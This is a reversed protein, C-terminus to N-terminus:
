KERRRERDDKEEGTERIERRECKRGRVEKEGEKERGTEGMDRRVMRLKVCGEGGKLVVHRGAAEAELACDRRGENRGGPGGGNGREREWRDNQTGARVTLQGKLHIATRRTPIARPRVVM